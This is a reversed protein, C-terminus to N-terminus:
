PTAKRTTTAARMPRDMAEKWFTKVSTTMTVSSVSRIPEWSWSDLSTLIRPSITPSTRLMAVVPSPARSERASWGSITLWIGASTEARSSGM